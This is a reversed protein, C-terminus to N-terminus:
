VTVCVPLKQARYRCKRVTTFIPNHWDQLYVVEFDRMYPEVYESLRMPMVDPWRMLPPPPNNISLTKIGQAEYRAKPEPDINMLQPEQRTLIITVDEGANRLLTSLHTVFTGVGGASGKVTQVDYSLIATKVM